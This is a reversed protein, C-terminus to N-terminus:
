VDRWNDGNERGNEGDDTLDGDDSTPRGPGDNSGSTKSSMTASSQLPKFNEGLKLVDNELYAMNDLDDQVLGQTAAYASILPLGYQMGKIYQEGLEKRNYPSCDLFTVQFYRGYSQAHIYRNVMDGISKVIGYTIMQDNRISLLLANASANENSFLLSSVGASTFLNKEADAITNTDGTNSKEFSIKEVPMPTLISGIEEPLVSDLNSWFDKAKDFDILWEGQDNTLIKMVVMAYNELALKSMKLVKYDELRYLEPLVGAFPPLAYHLIDNTCKIAFSTPSDLVQYRKKLRDAVFVKYKDSFESPYFALMNKHSDFYHFDFTVNPVGDVIETIHCFDSPLQQIMIKDGGVHMTGYFVDERLCVTLIKAFQTKIDFASLTNLVKRYNRRVTTTNAKAPDINHPSVIYVWDTLGTFYAIIRRFHPSAGYIYLIARRLEKEFKAPHRLFRAIDDKKYKGFFGHGRVDYATYDNLDRLIMASVGAFSSSFQKLIKSASIDDANGDPIVVSGVPETISDSM